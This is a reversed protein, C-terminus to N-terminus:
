SEAVAPARRFPRLGYRRETGSTKYPAFGDTTMQFSTGPKIADRVGEIFSAKVWRM